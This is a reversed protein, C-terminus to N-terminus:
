RIMSTGRRAPRKSLPTRVRAAIDAPLSRRYSLIRDTLAAKQQADLTELLRKEATTLSRLQTLGVAKDRVGVRRVSGLFEDRVVEDLISRIVKEPYPVIAALYKGPQESTVDVQSGIFYATSAAVDGAGTASLSPHSLCIVDAGSEVAKAMLSGVSRRTVKGKSHTELYFSLSKVRPNTLTAGARFTMSRRIEDASNVPSIFAVVPDANGGPLPLTTAIAGLAGALLYGEDFDFMVSAVNDGEVIGGFIVFATAPFDPAVIALDDAFRASSVALLRFGEDALRRLKEEAQIGPRMRYVKVDRTKPDLALRAALDEGFREDPEIIVGIKPRPQAKNSDSWGRCGTVFLALWVAFAFMAMM